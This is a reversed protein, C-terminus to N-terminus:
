FNFAPLIPAPLAISQALQGEISLLGPIIGGFGTGLPFTLPIDGGVHAIVPPISLPTLIGGLPIELTSDLGLLTADPLPLLTSGNLFGNALVAPADFLAAVAGTANGVQLANAFTTLSSGAAMLTTAPAGIADFILQLPAPFLLGPLNLNLETVTGTLAQVLNTFNQAMMGPISGAPLLNAFNQAMQGPISLIPLLDGLAGAPTITAIGTASLESANFGPLFLHEFGAGISTVGGTWNGAAIQGLGTHVAAPLQQLGIAFDQPASSLAHGITQAFGIQNNVFGQLGAAPNASMLAHSAAQAAAPLGNLEAPLNQIASAIQQGYFVQNNVFQHLLPLPNAMVTNSISQLNAATNTMLAQYPAAVTAGFSNLSNMLAPAGGAQLATFAGQANSVSTSFDAMGTAVAGNLAAPAGSIANSIAMEGAQIQGGLFAAASGNQLAAVAGNLSAGAQGAFQGIAAEGSTLAGGLTQGINGLGGGSVAQAANAVEADLYAGAGSNMLSVFRSHFLQAQANLIQFRNGFDGFMESIALSVEDQAAAPIGTTPGAVMSAADALSTRLGALNQAASEVLDTAAVVFSM